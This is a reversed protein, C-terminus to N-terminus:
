RLDDANLAIQYHNRRTTNKEKKPVIHLNSTNTLGYVDCNHITVSSRLKTLGFDCHSEGNSLDDNMAKILGSALNMKKLCNWILKSTSATNHYEFAQNQCRMPCIQKHKQLDGYSSFEELCSISFSFNKSSDRFKIANECIRIEEIVAGSTDEQASHFSDSECFLSEAIHRKRSESICDHWSSNYQNLDITERKSFNADIQNCRACKVAKAQRGILNFRQFGNVIDGIPKIVEPNEHFIQNFISSPFPFFKYSQVM